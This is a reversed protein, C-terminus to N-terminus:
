MLGKAKDSLENCLNELKGLITDFKKCEAKCGLEELDHMASVLSNFSDGYMDDVIRSIAEAREKKTVQLVGKRM